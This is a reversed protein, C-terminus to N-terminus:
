REALAVNWTVQATGLACRAYAMLAGRSCRTRLAGLRWRMGLTMGEIPRSVVVSKSVSLWRLGRDVTMASSSRRAVAGWGRQLLVVLWSRAPRLVGCARWWASVSARVRV